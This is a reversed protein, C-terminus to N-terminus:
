ALEPEPSNALAAERERWKDPHAAAFALDKGMARVRITVAQNLLSGRGLVGVGVASNILM